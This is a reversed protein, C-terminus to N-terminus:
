GLNLIAKELAIDLNEGGEMRSEHYIKILKTYFIKLKETSWNKLHGKSKQYPYDKVIALDAKSAGLNIASLDKMKKIMSHVIEEALVDEAKLKQYELWVKKVSREGIADQLAFSSYGFVKESSKPTELSEKEEKFVNEYEKFLSQM